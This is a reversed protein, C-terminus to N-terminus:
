DQTIITSGVKNIREKKLRLSNYKFPHKFDSGVGVCM